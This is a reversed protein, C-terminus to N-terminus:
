NDKYRLFLKLVQGRLELQAQEQHVKNHIGNQTKTHQLQNKAQGLVHPRLDPLKGPGFNRAQISLLDPKSRAHMELMQKLSLLCTPERFERKGCTVKPQWWM